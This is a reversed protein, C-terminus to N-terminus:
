GADSSPRRTLEAVSDSIHIAADFAATRERWAVCREHMAEDDLAARVPRDLRRLTSLRRAVGASELRAAHDFQDYDLPLVLAPIGLSLCRYLIGAGGHHIVLAYRPLDREYSVYALEQYNRERLHRTSRADGHTFHFEITPLSHAAARVAAIAEAKHARLHTGLTVLVHSKGDVFEPSPGDYPPTYLVPGTFALSAPWERAFEFDRAGLALIREDSYVAESGDARYLSDFGLATLQRRYVRGVIRKFARVLSRGLADRLRGLADSRPRWGGLYAPPGDATEIVCPSPLSTWWPIQLARAVAGAVPVTFDAIVLQPSWARLVADLEDRFRQMLALNARLQAHLRLPNGGVRRPPDAIAAIAADCGELLAHGELEAAAIAPLAAATSFVCVDFRDRLARGIGLLPHLHGSFPPAVLAVRVRSM